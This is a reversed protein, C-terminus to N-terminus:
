SKSKRLSIAFIILFAVLLIVSWRYMVAYGTTNAVIGLLVAGITIGVDTGMFFMSNAAGRKEPAARKLTWAMVTPQVAGFSIGYLVAAIIMGVIGTSFSLVLLSAIGILIGPILILAHGKTDFLKGTVPRVMIAAINNLLFFWGINNISLDQGFLSIFSLIGGYSITFLLMLFAPFLSSREFLGSGISAKQGTSHSVRRFTILQSLILSILVVIITAIFLTNSGYAQILWQGAIPGLALSIFQFVVYTGIGQGQRDPPILDAVISGLTVTMIGWGIGLLASVVMIWILNLSVTYGIAALAFLALGLTVIFRKSIVALAYDTFPRILVAALTVIGTVVGVFIKDAGSHILHIPMTPLLM